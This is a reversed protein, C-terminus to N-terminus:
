QAAAKLTNLYNETKVKFFDILPGMCFAAVVTGIGVVSGLMWGIIVCILDTIIRMWKFSIPKREAIMIAILDYPAMGLDAALYLGAGLSLVVCGIAVMLLNVWLLDTSQIIHNIIFTFGQILPAVLFINLITGVFIKKKDVFFIIILITGSVIWQVFSFNIHLTESIGMNMLTFPDIGLGAKLFIAIGLGIIIIGVVLIIYRKIEYAKMAEGKERMRIM